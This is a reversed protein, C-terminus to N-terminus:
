RHVNTAKRNNKNLYKMKLLSYKLREVGNRTEATLPGAPRDVDLPLCATQAQSVRSRTANPSKM